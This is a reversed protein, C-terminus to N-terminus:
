QVFNSVFVPFVRQPSYHESSCESSQDQQNEKHAHEWFFGSAKDEARQADEGCLLFGDSRELLLVFTIVQKPKVMKKASPQYKVKSIFREGKPDRIISLLRDPLESVQLSIHMLLFPQWSRKM